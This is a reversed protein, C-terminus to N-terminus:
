HTITNHSTQLRIEGSYKMKLLNKLDYTSRNDLLDCYERWLTLKIRGTEDVLYGDRISIEEGRSHVNRIEDLVVVGRAHVKADLPVQHLVKDVTLYDVAPNHSFGLEKEQVMSYDNIYIVDKTPKM